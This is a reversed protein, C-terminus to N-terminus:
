SVKRELDALVSDMGNELMAKAIDEPSSNEKFFKPQATTGSPTTGPKASPSGGPRQVAYISFQNDKLFSDIMDKGSGDKQLIPVTSVNGWEDKQEIVLSGEKLQVGGFSQLAMLFQDPHSIRDRVTNYFNARVQTEQANLREQEALQQAKTFNGKLTQNESELAKIKALVETLGTQQEPQQLAGEPPTAGEKPKLVESFLNEVTAKVSDNIGDYKGSVADIDSKLEKRVKSVAGTLSTNFGSTLEEKLPSVIKSVIQTIQDLDEQELPM